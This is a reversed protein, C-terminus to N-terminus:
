GATPPKGSEFARHRLAAVMDNFADEIDSLHPDSSRFRLVCDLNGQRVAELSRRIAILPGALRHTTFIALAFIALLLCLTQIGLILLLRDKGSDTLRDSLTLYLTVAFVVVALSTVLLWLGSFRLMYPLTYRIGSGRVEQLRAM